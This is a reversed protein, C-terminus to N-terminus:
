FNVMDDKIKCDCDDKRELTNFSYCIFICYTVFFKWHRPDILFFLSCHCKDFTNIVRPYCLICPVCTKLSYYVLQLIDAMFHMLTSKLM